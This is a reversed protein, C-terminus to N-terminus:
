WARSSKRQSCRVKAPLGVRMCSNTGVAGQRTPVWSAEPIPAPPARQGDGVVVTRTERARRSEAAEVRALRQEDTLASLGQSILVASNHHVGPALHPFDQHLIELRFAAFAAQHEPRLFGPPVPPDVCTRPHLNPGRRTLTLRLWALLQECAVGNNDQAILASLVAHAQKPPMGVTLFPAAYRNPVVIAQRSILPGVDPDGAAFPGFVEANPDAAILQQLHGETPVQTATLQNFCGDPIVVTLPAQGNNVDGFFALGQNDYPLPTQGFRADHRTLRHYAVIIGPDDLPGHPDRVHLLM